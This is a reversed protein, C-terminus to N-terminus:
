KGSWKSEHKRKEFVCMIATIMFCAATVGILIYATM